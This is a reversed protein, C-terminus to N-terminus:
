FGIWESPTLDKIDLHNAVFWKKPYIVVSDKSRGLWAAWWSYSSNAMIFHKCMCMLQLYPLNDKGYFREDVFTINDYHSLKERCWSIDDSFVYFRAGTLHDTCYNIGDSIYRESVVGHYDLKQLYDGRRVHIMVSNSDVIELAMKKWIGSLEHKFTFQRKILNDIPAFYKYSQWYGDVIVLKKDTKDAELHQHNTRDFCYSNESILTIEDRRWQNNFIVEEANMYEDIKFTELDFRRDSRGSTYFNTYLLLPRNYELSLFKGFAYQFMQNGIGGKLKIVIM